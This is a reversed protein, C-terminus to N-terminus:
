SNYKGALVIYRGTAAIVSGTPVIYRGAPVIVRSGTPVVYGPLNIVLGIRLVHILPSNSYGLSKQCIMVAMFPNSIDKDTATQEPCFGNANPSALEQIGLIPVIWPSNIVMEVRLLNLMLSNFVRNMNKYNVHAMRRHWKVCEDFSAHAVLCALNGKPCLDNLDITYLNHKRPVKLVVMSDDPLKFDKSLVLCETDTFLVQNKKDCIQSIFFLNFQQLEKVYYVNEFDLIPTRITGKGTIRGEGGGFTVKRGNIAQFDDLRDKNGTMSRSCGSDFIGEDETASFPTEQPTGTPVPTVKPKGTSVSKVKPQRTPVPKVKPKGTPVPTGKPKGTPVPTGRPRGTPVPTGRPRGTPVPTAKPTGTRVPTAKPTGTLVPQPRIATGVGRSEQESRTNEKEKHIHEQDKMSEPITAAVSSSAGTTPNASTSTTQDQSKTSFVEDLTLDTTNALNKVLEECPYSILKDAAPTFFTLPAIGSTDAIYGEFKYGYTSRIYTTNSCIIKKHPQCLTNTLSVKYSKPNQETIKQLPFRNGLKEQQIDKYSYKYFILPPNEQYKAKYLARSEEAEPIIPNLYYYTASTATLQYDKYKSVRCSSVATIVPQEMKERDAKEFHEEMEDWLTLEIINGNLNEIDIKRRVGQRENPNGFPEIGSVARICGIYNTLIPYQMKSKNDPKTIKIGASQSFHFPSLPTSVNRTYCKRTQYTTEAPTAEDQSLYSTSEGQVMELVNSNIVDATENKPCVIAKQQLNIASHTQLTNQDYIFDILSSLGNEGSPLCYEPPISIWHTNKPDQEDAERIKGDGIDLLWSTFSSVLSHENANIDPRSLRMNEKLMFVKFHPWLNSESICSAISEMKSAGKKVPLTQRFDGGLLVSKGGFLSHPADLIDRLSRDLAEFCRRDNMPAEDWVILNTDALLKGLQTNKTIKRLSEETLELPLKFRSHTTRRSPLLLSAIGSSAVALVIKGKSRLTGIITKWLFTKGTGGHGYVFILEQENTADAHIVMDYIRRKYHTTTLIFDPIHSMESVRDPIDHSMENWFKTWLKSPDTVDCQVLIQAFLSRLEISTASVCAEQFATDWEVDDGLLGLAQCASRCTPYFVNNVIQVEFFDQCGRQHCLLMRFYFLEGSAPHVYALRGISSKSNRRPSWSKRDPYWVFESPFDLYTLHRGDVNATNYAFWEILTTSKKGPLNVVSEIIQGFRGELYNQIEDVPQRSSSDTSAQEGLPRSVRAFIRDTGKSIYHQMWILLVALGHMVMKSVIKYGQPDASPDPLEASIFRDVDEPGRIKSESNVWLLTHCHPLGRKQFEVTYLVGTVDGFIQRMVRGNEEQFRTTYGQCIIVEFTMKNKGLSILGIKNSPVSFVLSTNSFSGEEKIRKLRGDKQQIVIDFDTSGELGSDFIIAGLTNSTALEYGRAGETNYLRIKFELIDVGRLKDRATRVLQVLENYADLFQILGQVIEKDLTSNDLGGFHRMRNELECNTDYIYLQLFRPAERLTPCMSGIWHYVQSSLKFVYPGRGRNISEDIKAGFSTMVFMQNYARINEMFHKNQFLLKIYEPPEPEPGIHIRGGGCCLRYEAEQHGKLREAYWFAAGCYRCQQNCDGLDEYVGLNGANTFTSCGEGNQSAVRISRGGRLTGTSEGNRQNSTSARARVPRRGRGTGISGRTEHGVNMSTSCGDVEVRALLTGLKTGANMSTSCGERSPSTVRVSRRGRGTGTSGRNRQNSISARARKLPYDESPVLMSQMDERTRKYPPMVSNIAYLSGVAAFTESIRAQNVANGFSSPQSVVPLLSRTEYCTRKLHSSSSSAGLSTDETAAFRRAVNRACSQSYKEFADIEPTDYRTRKLRNSASVDGRLTDENVVARATVNRACLESYKDFVDPGLMKKSGLNGLAVYELLCDPFKSLADGSNKSSSDPVRLGRDKTKKKVAYIAGSYRPLQGPPPVLQSQLRVKITDFPIGVILQTARGITGTALDNEVEVM